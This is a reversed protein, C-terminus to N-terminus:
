GRRRGAAGALWGVAFVGGLGAVLVALRKPSGVARWVRTPLPDIRPPAENISRWREPTFEGSSVEAVTHVAVDAVPGAVRVELFADFQSSLLRSSIRNQLLPLAVPVEISSQYYRVGDREKTSFKLPGYDGSFVADVKGRPYPGFSM